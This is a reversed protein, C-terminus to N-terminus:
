VAACLAERQPVIRALFDSVRIAASRSAPSGESLNRPEPRFTGTSAQSDSASYEARRANEECTRQFAKMFAMIDLTNGDPV